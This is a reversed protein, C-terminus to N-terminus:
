VEQPFIGNPLSCGAREGLFKEIVKAEEDSIKKAKIMNLIECITFEGYENSGFSWIIEKNQETSELHEKLSKWKEDSMITFGFFDIEDAWNPKFSLLYM